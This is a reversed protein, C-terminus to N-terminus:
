EERIIIEDFTDLNLMIAAKSFPTGMDLNIKKCDDYFFAGIEGDWGHEKMYQVPTHGHVMIYNEPISVLTPKLFHERDWLCSAKSHPKVGEAFDWGAHSLLFTYGEPNTYEEVLPLNRLIRCLIKDEYSGRGEKREWDIWTQSGGNSIYLNFAHSGLSEPYFALANAFMEEHNGCLYIFRKDSLAERMMRYGDLGRDIMDGLIYCKDNETLISKVKDWIKGNGHLDAIAYTAMIM